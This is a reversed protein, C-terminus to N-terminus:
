KLWAKRNFKTQNGPILHQTVFVIHSVETKVKVISITGLMKIIKKKQLKKRIRNQFHLM